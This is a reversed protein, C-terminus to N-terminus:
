SHPPWGMIELMMERLSQEARRWYEVVRAQETRVDHGDCLAGREDGSWRAHAPAELVTVNQQLGLGYLKFASAAAAQVHVHVDRARQPLRIWDVQPSLLPLQQSLRSLRGALLESGLLQTGAVFWSANLAQSDGGSWVLAVDGGDGTDVRFSFRAACPGARHSTAVGSHTFTWRGEFRM